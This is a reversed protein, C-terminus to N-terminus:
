RAATKCAEDMREKLYCIDEESYQDLDFCRADQGLLGGPVFDGKEDPDSIMDSYFCVSLWRPDGEIVDVMVFLSEEKQTAHSARLSYTLGPRPHFSLGVSDMSELHEKLEIFAKKNQEPGEAWEAIFTEIEQKTTNMIDKFYYRGIGSYSVPNLNNGPSQQGITVITCLVM